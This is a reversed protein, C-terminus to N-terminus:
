GGQLWQVTFIGIIANVWKRATVNVIRSHFQMMATPMVCLILMTTSSPYSAELVGDILVPRYNVVFVEFFSYAALVLLYFGGLVLINRDVRCISKRQIMQVLGLLAFGVMMGIAALSLWDTLNYLKFRVGVAQRVASNFTAFGVPLGNPGIPQVDLYMLAATYGIFLVFLAATFLFLKKKKM